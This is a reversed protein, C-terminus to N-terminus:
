MLFMDPFEGCQELLFKHRGEFANRVEPLVVKKNWDKLAKRMNDQMLDKYDKASNEHWWLYYFPGVLHSAGDASSIIKVEIPAENIDIELKKDIIKVYRIAKEIFQEDFGIEALKEPAKEITTEYQNDFDIIKGYDHLWVLVQVLDRDAEKYADCLEESIKDVIELHYEVFWKNHIFDSSKSLETVHQKLKEILKEM